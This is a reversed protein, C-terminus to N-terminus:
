LNLKMELLSPMFGVKEYAKIAAVNESYVDLYFDHVGHERSWNILEDLIKKNINQGRYEPAVYMFGLYCHKEHKLSNKSTRIQGYGTAVICNDVDAVVLKSDEDNILNEIKYYTADQQKITSNFPREAEVVAQELRKLEALDTLLAERFIM